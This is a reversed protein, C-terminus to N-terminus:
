VYYLRMRRLPAKDGFREKAEIRSIKKVKVEKHYILKCLANNVRIRSMGLEISIELCSLPKKEKELYRIIEEQAM